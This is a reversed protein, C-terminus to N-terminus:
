FAGPIVIIQGPYIKHANKINNIRALQNFKTPNKNYRELIDWLNDGPVVKHRIEKAVKPKAVPKKVPAPAPAPIPVKEAEVTVGYGSKTFLHTVKKFKYVGSFAGGVGTVRYASDVTYKADPMLDLTAETIFEKEPSFDNVSKSVKVPQYLAM